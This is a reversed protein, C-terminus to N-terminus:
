DMEDCNMCDYMESRTTREDIRYRFLDAVLNDNESKLALLEKVYYIGNQQTIRGYYMDMRITSIIDDIKIDIMHFKSINNKYNVDNISDVCIQNCQSYGVGAILLAAVSLKIKKM